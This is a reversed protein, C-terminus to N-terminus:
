HAGHMARACQRFSEVQDIIIEVLDTVAQSSLGLQQGFLFDLGSRDISMGPFPQAGGGFLEETVDVFRALKEAGFLTAALSDPAIDLDHHTRIAEIIEAPAHWLHLMRCTLESHDVGMAQHEAQELSIHANASVEANLKLAGPVCLEEAMYGLDHVLGALYAAGSHKAKKCLAIEHAAAAMTLAHVWLGETLAAPLKQQLPNGFLMAIAMHRARALGIRRVADSIAHLPQGLHSFAVSNAIGMLRISLQPESAIVQILLKEAHDDEVNLALLDVALPSLAPLTRPDFAAAKCNATSRSASVTM